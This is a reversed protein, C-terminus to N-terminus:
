APRKRRDNDISTFYFTMFWCIDVFLNDEFRGTVGYLTPIHFEESRPQVRPHGPIAVNIVQKRPQYSDQQVQKSASSGSPRYKDSSQVNRERGTVKCTTQYQPSM